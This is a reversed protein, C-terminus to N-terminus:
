RLGKKNYIKRRTQVSEEETLGEKYSQSRSGEKLRLKFMM